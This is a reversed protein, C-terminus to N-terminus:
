ATGDPTEDEPEPVPSEQATEWTWSQPPDSAPFSAESIEDVTPPRDRGTALPVAHRPIEASASM